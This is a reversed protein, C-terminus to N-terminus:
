RVRQPDPRGRGRKGLFLPLPPRLLAGSALLLDHKNLPSFEVTVEVEGPGPAALEEVDVVRVVDEPRGFETIQIARV